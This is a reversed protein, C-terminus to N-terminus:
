IGKGFIITLDNQVKPLQINSQMLQILESISQMTTAPSPDMRYTMALRNLLIKTALFQIEPKIEGSIMKLWNPNTSSPVEM